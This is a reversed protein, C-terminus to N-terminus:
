PQVDVPQTPTASASPPSAIQATDQDSSPRPRADLRAGDLAREQRAQDAAAGQREARTRGFAARNREAEAAADARKKAKRITRLNVVDGM